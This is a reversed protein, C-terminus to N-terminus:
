ERKSELRVEAMNIGLELGELSRDLSSLMVQTSTRSSMKLALGKSSMSCKGSSGLDCPGGWGLM